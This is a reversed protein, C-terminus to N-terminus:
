IRTVEIKYEATLINMIEQGHNLLRCALYQANAPEMQLDKVLLRELDKQKILQEVMEQSLEM